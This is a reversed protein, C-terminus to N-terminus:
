PGFVDYGLQWVAAPCNSLGAASVLESKSFIATEGDKAGVTVRSTGSEDGAGITRPDIGCSKVKLDGTTEMLQRPKDVTRDMVRDLEAGPNPYSPERLAELWQRATVRWAVSADPDDAVSRVEVETKDALHNLAGQVYEGARRCRTSCQLRLRPVYPGATKVQEYTAIRYLHSPINGSMSLVYTGTCGGEFGECCSLPLIKASVTAKKCRWGGPHQWQGVRVSRHASATPAAQWRSVLRTPLAGAYNSKIDIRSM